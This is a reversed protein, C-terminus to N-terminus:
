YLLRNLSLQIRMCHEMGLKLGKLGLSITKKQLRLLLNLSVIPYSSYGVKMVLPM